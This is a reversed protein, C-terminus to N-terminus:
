TRIWEVESQQYSQTIQVSLNISRKSVWHSNCTNEVFHTLNTYCLCLSVISYCDVQNVCSVICDMRSQYSMYDLSCGLPAVYIRSVHDYHSVHVHVYTRICVCSVFYLSFCTSQPGYTQKCVSWLRGKSAYLLFEVTM